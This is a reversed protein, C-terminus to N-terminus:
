KQYCCEAFHCLSTMKPLLVLCFSMIVDNNTVVGLL